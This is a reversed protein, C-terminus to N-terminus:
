QQILLDLSSLKSNVGKSVIDMTALTMRAITNTPRSEDYAVGDDDLRLLLPVVRHNLGEEVSLDTPNSTGLLKGSSSVAKNLIM